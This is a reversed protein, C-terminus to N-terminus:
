FLMLYAIGCRTSLDTGLLGYAKHNIHKFAKVCEKVLKGSINRRATMSRCLFDCDYDYCAHKSACCHFPDRRFCHRAACRESRQTILYVPIATCLFNLDYRFYVGTLPTFRYIAWCSCWNYRGRSATAVPLTM